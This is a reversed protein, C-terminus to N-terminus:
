INGIAVPTHPVGTRGDDPVSEQGEWFHEHWEIMRSLMLTRVLYQLSRDHIEDSSKGEILYSKM